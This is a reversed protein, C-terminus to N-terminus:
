ESHPPTDDEMRLVHISISDTEATTWSKPTTRWVSSTSQFQQTDDSHFILQRRGGYPPRPNFYASQHPASHRPYDDEMRLVHISIATEPLCQSTPDPRGGYPPRPNFYSAACWSQVLLLTTRWVSSTSQFARISHVDIRSFIDDEMRLVHISIRGAGNGCLSYVQRGGYPPRPNFNIYECNQGGEAQRGGYPPRPNFHSPNRHLILASLRGGYPPRPNFYLCALAKGQDLKDDEARLVHISIKFVFAGAFGLQRNDQGEGNVDLCFM